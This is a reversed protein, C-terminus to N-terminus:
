REDERVAWSDLPHLVVRENDFDITKVANETYPVLLRGKIDPGTVAMIDQAALDLWGKVRGLERLEGDTEECVAYGIVDVLYFEDEDPAPLSDRPVRAQANRLQDAEDRGDIEELTILAFRDAQRVSAVTVQEIPCDDLHLVLGPTLLESDPNHPFFRLEGRVGHPRGFKGIVVDDSM